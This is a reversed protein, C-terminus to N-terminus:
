DHETLWTTINQNSFACQLRSLATPEPIHSSVESHLGNEEKLFQMDDHFTSHGQKLKELPLPEKPGWGVNDTVQLM